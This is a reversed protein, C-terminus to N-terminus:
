NLLACNYLYRNRFLGPKDRLRGYEAAILMIKLNAKIVLCFSMIDPLFNHRKVCELM